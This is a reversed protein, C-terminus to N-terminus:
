DGGVFDEAALPDDQDGNGPGECGRARLAMQGTVDVLGGVDLGLSDVLDGAHRDIVRENHPGPASILPGLPFNAHQGVAAAIKGASEAELEIEAFATEADARLAIRHQDVVTDDFREVDLLLRALDVDRAGFRHELRESGENPGRPSAPGHWPMPGNTKRIVPM